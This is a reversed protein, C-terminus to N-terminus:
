DDSNNEKEAPLQDRKRQQKLFKRLMQQNRQQTTEDSTALHVGGGWGGAGVKQYESREDLRQDGLGQIGDQNPLKEGYLGISHHSKSIAWQMVYWGGVVPISFYVVGMLVQGYRPLPVRFGSHVFHKLREHREHFLRLSDRLWSM